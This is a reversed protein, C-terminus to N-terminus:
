ADEEDDEHTIVSRTYEVRELVNVSPIQLKLYSNGRIKSISFIFEPCIFSRRLDSIDTEKGQANYSKTYIKRNNGEILKAYLIVQKGKPKSLPLHFDADPQLEEIANKAKMLTDLIDMHAEFDEHLIIKMVKQKLDVENFFNDFVGYCPLAADENKEVSLRFTQPETDDDYRYLVTIRHGSSNNFPSPTSLCIREEDFDKPTIYKPAQFVFKKRPSMTASIRDFRM